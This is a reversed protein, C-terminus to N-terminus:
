THTRQLELHCCQVDAYRLLSLLDDPDSVAHRWDAADEVQGHIQCVLQDGVLHSMLPEDASLVPDLSKAKAAKSKHSFSKLLGAFPGAQDLTTM